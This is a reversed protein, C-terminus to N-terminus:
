RYDLGMAQRVDRMTERALHRAKSNGDAIIENCWNRIM